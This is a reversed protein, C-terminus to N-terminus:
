KKDKKEKYKKRRKKKRRKKTNKKKGGVTNTVVSLPPALKQGTVVFNQKLKNLNDQNEKIYPNHTKQDKIANNIINEQEKSIDSIQKFQNYDYDSGRHWDKLDNIIEEKNYNKSSYVEDNIDLIYNLILSQQNTLKTM